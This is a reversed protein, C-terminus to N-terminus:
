WLRRDDGRDDSYSVGDSDDSDGGCEGDEKGNHLDWVRSFIDPVIHILQVEIPYTIAHNVYGHITYM